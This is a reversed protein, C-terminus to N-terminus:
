NKLILMKMLHDLVKGDGVVFFRQNLFDIVFILVIRNKDVEIMGDQGVYQCYV